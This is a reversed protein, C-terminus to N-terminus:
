LIRLVDFAGRRRGEKHGSLSEFGRGGRHSRLARALQALRDNNGFKIMKERKKVSIWNLFSLEKAM